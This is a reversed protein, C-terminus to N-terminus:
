RILWLEVFVLARLVLLSMTARRISSVITDWAVGDPKEAIEITLSLPFFAREYELCRVFFFCNLCLWGVRDEM